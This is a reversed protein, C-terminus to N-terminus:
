ARRNATGQLTTQFWNKRPFPLRKANWNVPPRRRAAESPKILGASKPKLSRRRIRSSEGRAPKTFNFEGPHQVDPEPQTAPIQNEPMVWQPIFGHTPLELCLATKARFIRWIRTVSKLHLYYPWIFFPQDELKAFARAATIKEHARLGTRCGSGLAHWRRKGHFRLKLARVARRQFQM